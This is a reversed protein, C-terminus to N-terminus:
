CDKGLIKMIKKAEEENLDNFSRQFALATERQYNECSVLDIKIQTKSEEIAELLEQKENIDLSYEKAIIDFWKDPVNKKGNEVVSLFPTKVDLLKATDGMVQHHKIRLIRMFEGFRTYAM